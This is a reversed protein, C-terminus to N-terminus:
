KIMPKVEEEILRNIFQRKRNVDGKGITVLTNTEMLEDMTKPNVFIMKGRKHGFEITKSDIKLIFDAEDKIKTVNWYGWYNIAITAYNLEAADKTVIYVKNGLKTLTKFLESKNIQSSAQITTKSTDQAFCFNGQFLLISIFLIVIKM